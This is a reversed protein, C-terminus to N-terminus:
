TFSNNSLLLYRPCDDCFLEKVGTKKFKCTKSPYSSIYCKFHPKTQPVFHVSYVFTHKQKSSVLYGKSILIHLIRSLNRRDIGTSASIESLSMVSSIRQYGATKRLVALLVKVESGTLIPLLSFFENPLQTFSM